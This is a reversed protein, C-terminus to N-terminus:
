GKRASSLNAQCTSVPIKTCCFNADCNAGPICSKVKSIAYGDPYTVGAGLCSIQQTNKLCCTSTPAFTGHTGTTCNHNGLLSFGNPCMVGAQACTTETLPTNKLCCTNGNCAGEQCIANPQLTSGRPCIIM